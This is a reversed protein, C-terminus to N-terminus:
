QKTTLGKSPQAKVGLADKLEQLQPRSKKLAYILGDFISAQPNKIQPTDNSARLALLGLLSLITLKNM